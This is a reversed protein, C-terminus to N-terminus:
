LEDHPDGEADEGDPNWPTYGGDDEVIWPQPKGEHMGNMFWDVVVLSESFERATNILAVVENRELSIEDAAESFIIKMATGIGLVQLKGWLRCRECQVCDMILSINRFKEKYEQRVLYPNRARELLMKEDFTPSCLLPSSLLEDMLMTVEADEDPRGSDYDYERLYDSSKSIARLVFLYTFYLNHIRDPYKAVAANFWGTNPEDSSTMIVHVTISTHLGSMLEYFARGEVCMSNPDDSEDFTFCNEAYILQWVRTASQGAYGTNKEPNKKLNIYRLKSLDDDQVMWSDEEAGIAFGKHSEGNLEIPLSQSCCDPSPDKQLWSVPIESEDCECVSCDEKGCTGNDEFFLCERFMNVRFLQFYLHDFLSNLTVSLHERNEVKVADITNHCLDINLDDEQSVDVTLLSGERGLSLRALGLLVCFLLRLM